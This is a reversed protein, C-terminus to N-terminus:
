FDPAFIAGIKDIEEGYRGYFGILHRGEPARFDLLDRPRRGAELERGFNSVLRLYFVRTKNRYRDIGVSLSRISEGAELWLVQEEGGSGGYSLELGDGYVCTVADLRDGSRLKVGMLRSTFSLRESMDFYGGGTGGLELAKYFFRPQQPAPLAQRRGRTVGSVKEETIRQAGSAVRISRGLEEQLSQEDIPSYWFELTAADNKLDVLGYGHRQSEFYRIGPNFAQIGLKFGAAAVGQLFGVV